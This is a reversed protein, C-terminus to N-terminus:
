PRETTIGAGLHRYFRRKSVESVLVYLATIALVVGLVIGPLPVFGFPAALATFPLAIAVLMVIAVSWKLFPAPSSRTLPRYTRIVLLIWLETLLSEVFWGTRFLEANGDALALLAMFTVLDFATSTLGFMLMSRRILGIDWRHPTREWERDVNDRAIGMAPVDSLFNNLLIQKALLPLFPLYVSALAMSLMNGFNASTTIFIYKITNAFTHRGEDIGRRIVDLDHRLLVFDAADKAVDVATDV